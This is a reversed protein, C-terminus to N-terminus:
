KLRSKEVPELSMREACFGRIESGDVTDMTIRDFQELEQTDLLM